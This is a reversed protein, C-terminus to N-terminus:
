APAGSAIHDRLENIAKRQATVVWNVLDGISVLGIVAAGDMVPLHRVRSEIMLRMSQDVTHAATVTVIEKTMIERVLTGHSNRGQLIVKRAYDRESIIGRLADQDMVLLCGIHKEAMIGIARYVSADPPVVHIEDSKMRLVSTVPEDFRIAPKDLIFEVNM